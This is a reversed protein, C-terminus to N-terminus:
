GWRHVDASTQLLRSLGSARAMVYWDPRRAPPEYPAGAGGAVAGPRRGGVALWMGLDAKAAMEAARWGIRM